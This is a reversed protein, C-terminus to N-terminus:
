RELHDHKSILTHFQDAHGRAFCLVGFLHKGMRDIANNAPHQDKIDASQQNDHGEDCPVLEDGSVLGKTKTKSFVPIGPPASIMLKTTMVAAAEDHLLPIKLVPRM